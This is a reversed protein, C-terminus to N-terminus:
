PYTIASGLASQAAIVGGGFPPSMMALEAAKVTGIKMASSARCEVSAGAIPSGATSGPPTVCDTVSYTPSVNRVDFEPSGQRSM